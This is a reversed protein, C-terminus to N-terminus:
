GVKVRLRYPTDYYVDVRLTQVVGDFPAVQGEKWVANITYGYSTNRIDGNVEYGFGPGYFCVPSSSSDWYCGRAECLEETAVGEPYCDFRASINLRPFVRAGLLFHATILLLLVSLLVVFVVIVIDCRRIPEGQKVVVVRLDETTLPIYKAAKM